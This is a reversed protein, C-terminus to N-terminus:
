CVLRRPIRCRCLRRGVSDITEVMVTETPSLMADGTQLRAKVNKCSVTARASVLILPSRCRAIRSRRVATLQLRAAGDSRRSGFRQRSPRTRRSVFLLALVRTGSVERRLIDDADHYAVTGDLRVRFELGRLRRAAPRAVIDPGTMGNAERDSHRCDRQEQYRLGRLASQAAEDGVHARETVFERWSVTRQEHLRTGLERREKAVDERLQERRQAAALGAISAAVRPPMAKRPEDRDRHKQRTIEASRDRESQHQKAWADAYRESGDRAARFETYLRERAEAREERRQARKEPDRKYQRESGPEGRNSGSPREGRSSGSRHQTRDRQEDRRRHGVPRNYELRRPDDVRRSADSDRQFPGLRQELRERSAFRGIHSAKAVLREDTRDVVVFGSGKERLELNFDGLVRRVDSWTTNERDLAKRLPPGAERV